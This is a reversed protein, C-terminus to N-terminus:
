ESGSWYSPSVDSVMGFLKRLRLVLLEAGCLMWRFDTLDPVIGYRGMQYPDGQAELNQYAVYSADFGTERVTAMLEPTFDAPGGQPYCFWNVSVNTQAELVQKSEVIERRAEEVPVRSLIPHNITHAGVLLGDAIMERLEDWTTAAYQPAAQEPVEVELKRALQLLVQNKEENPLFRCRDAIQHYARHRGPESTLDVQFEQDGITFSTQQSAALTKIYELRDWWFWTQGSVFGTTVFLMAPIGYERFLPFAVTYFDRYGDDVTVVVPCHGALPQTLSRLHDDPTVVTHNRALYAAQWRLADRDVFRPDGDAQDAFRHYMLSRVHSRTLFRCLPEFGPLNLLIRKMRKKM